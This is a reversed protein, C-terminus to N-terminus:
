SSASRYRAVREIKAVASSELCAVTIGCAPAVRKEDLQVRVTLM